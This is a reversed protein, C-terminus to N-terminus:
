PNQLLKSVDDPSLASAPPPPNEAANGSDSPLLEESGSHIIKKLFIADQEIRYADKVGSKTLADQANAAEVTTFNKPDTFVKYLPLSTKRVGRHPLELTKFLHPPIAHNMPMADQFLATM